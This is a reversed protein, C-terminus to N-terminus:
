EASSAKHRLGHVHHGREGCTGDCRLNVGPALKLRKYFEARDFPRTIGQRTAWDRIAGGGERALVGAVV